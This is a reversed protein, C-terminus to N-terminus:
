VIKINFIPYFIIFVGYLYFTKMEIAQEASLFIVVNKRLYMQLISLATKFLYKKALHNKDCDTIM